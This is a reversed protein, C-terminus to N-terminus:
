ESGNMQSILFTKVCGMVVVVEVVVLEDMEEDKVDNGVDVSFELILSELIIKPLWVSNGWVKLDVWLPMLESSGLSSCSPKDPPPIAPIMM